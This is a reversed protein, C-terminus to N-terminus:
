KMHAPMTESDSKKPVIPNVKSLFKLESYNVINRLDFIEEIMSIGQRELSLRRHFSTRLKESFAISLISKRYINRYHKTTISELKVQRGSVALRSASPARPSRDKNRPAVPELTLLDSKNFLQTRPSLSMRKDQGRPTYVKSVKPLSYVKSVFLSKRSEHDVQAVAMAFARSTRRNSGEEDVPVTDVPLGGVLMSYRKTPSSEKQENPLKGPM